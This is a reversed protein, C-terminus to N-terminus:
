YICLAITHLFGVTSHDIINVQSIMLAVHFNKMQRSRLALVNLDNTEGTLHVICVENVDNFM